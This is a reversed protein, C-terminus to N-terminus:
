AETEKKIFHSHYFYIHGLNFHLNDSNIYTFYEPNNRALVILFENRIQLFNDSVDSFIQSSFVVSILNLGNQLRGM